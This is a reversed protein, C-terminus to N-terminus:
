SSPSSPVMWSSVPEVQGHHGDHPGRTRGRRSPEAAVHIAVHRRDVGFVASQKEPAQCLHSLALDGAQRETVFVDTGAQDGKHRRRGPRCSLARLRASVTGREVADPRELLPEDAADVVTDVEDLIGGTAAWRTRAPLLSWKVVAIRNPQPCPAIMSNSDTVEGDEPRCNARRTRSAAQRNAAKVSGDGVVAAVRPWSRPQTSARWPNNSSPKPRPEVVVIAIERRSSIPRGPGYGGLRCEAARRLGLYQRPNCPAPDARPDNSGPRPRAVM